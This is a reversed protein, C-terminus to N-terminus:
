RLCPWVRIAHKQTPPLEMWFSEMKRNRGHALDWAANDWFDESDAGNRLNRVFLHTVGDGRERLLEKLRDLLMQWFANPDDVMWKKRDIEEKALLGDSGDTFEVTLSSEVGLRRMEREFRGMANSQRPPANAPPANSPIPKSSM